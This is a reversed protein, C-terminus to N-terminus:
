FVDELRLLGSDCCFEGESVFPTDGGVGECSDCGGSAGCCDCGVEGGVGCSDRCMEGGGESKKVASPIFGLVDDCCAGVDM